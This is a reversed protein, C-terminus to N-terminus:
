TKCSKLEDHLKNSLHLFTLEDEFDSKNYIQEFLDSLQSDTYGLNEFKINFWELLYKKYEKRHSVYWNVVSAHYDLLSENKGLVPKPVDQFVEEFSKFNM